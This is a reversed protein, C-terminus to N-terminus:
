ELVIDEGNELVDFWFFDFLLFDQIGEEFFEGEFVDTVGEGCAEGAAFFSSEFDCSAKGCIGEEYEEIFGKGSDVGDGDVVYFSEDGVEFISADADENCVM